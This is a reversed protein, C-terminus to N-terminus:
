DCRRQPPSESPLFNVRLCSGESGRRGGLQWGDGGGGGGAAVVGKGEGCVGNTDPCGCDLSNRKEM